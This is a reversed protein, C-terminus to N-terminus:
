PSLLFDLAQGAAGSSPAQPTSSTATSAATSPAAEAPRGLSNLMDQVSPALTVHPKSYDQQGPLPTTAPAQGRGRPATAAAASASAAYTHGNATVDPVTVGPQYPGLYSNCRNRIADNAASGGLAPTRLDTQYPSCQPDLIVLVRLMHGIPDFDNIALTQWYAYNLIAEFGTFGSGPTYATPDPAPPATQQARADPAASRKRSDLTQLFQRLPKATSPANQAVLKLEAIDQSSDHFARTGAVSAKGLANVAPTSANSFPGLRTFLTQLSPAARQLDILLPTQQDTLEGLQTMTPRLQDLFTPLRQFGASIAPQQQASIQATHGSQRVWNAVDAKKQDLQGVVVNASSIFNKITTSQNALIKLVQDTEQLAPHARHLLDSIDQPRGALGTGLEAIILRLRDRYPRRLVDGVLDAPITSATQTDPLTENEPLAQPSNGPQCDVYYEGILSQQRIACSADKRLNQFGPVQINATVIACTRPPSTNPKGNQCEPGKSIDFSKTQGAKVGAVRLDGGPSLGFANDFAMKLTTGQQEEKTAGTVIVVAVCGLAVLCAAVIRRIM